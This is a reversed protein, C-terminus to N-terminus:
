INTIKTKVLALKRSPKLPCDCMTGCGLAPKRSPKLPCDWVTGYGLPGQTNLKMKQQRWRSISGSELQIKYTFESLGSIPTRQITWCEGAEGLELESSRWTCWRLGAEM